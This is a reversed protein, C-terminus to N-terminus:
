AEHQVIETKELSGQHEKGYHLIHIRDVPADVHATFQDSPDRVFFVILVAAVSFCGGCIWVNRFAITYADLMGRLGAQVIAPTVGPLRSLVEENKTTLAVVFEQQSAEPLGLPLVAALIKPVLNDRVTSNFLANFIALGVSGGLARTAIILGTGTSILRAPISLQAAVVLPNLSLALGMGIFINYGWLNAVPTSATTTAMLVFYVIFCLFALVAPPRVKKTRSCYLGTLITTVISAYYVISYILGSTFLNQGYLFSCQFGFYNAVAIFSLSEVFVGAQAIAFNRSQYLDHDFLGHKKYFVTYCGLAIASAVGVLFPALVRASTWPYPNNSYGLGVCFTLLSTMVLLIAPIDLDSLKESLSLRQEQRMQPRYFTAVLLAGIFYIGALLYFYGRWGSPNTKVMAGAVYLGIIAGIGAALIVATQAWPRFKRPLVESPVAHLISQCGPSAGAVVSAGLIMGISNSRSMIICGVVSILATIVVLWKRGWFDAIQSIPPGAVTPYLAVIITLWAAKDHGGIDSTITQGLFGAGNIQLMHAMYVFVIAIVTLISGATVKEDERSHDVAPESIGTAAGLREVQAQEIEINKSM